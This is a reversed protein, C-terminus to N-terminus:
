GSNKDGDAKLSRTLRLYGPHGPPLLWMWEPATPVIAGIVDGGWPEILGADRLEISATMDYGLPANGARLYELLSKAYGSLEAM